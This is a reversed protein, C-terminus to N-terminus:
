QIVVAKKSNPPGWGHEVLGTPACLSGSALRKDSHSSGALAASTWLICCFKSPPGTKLSPAWRV